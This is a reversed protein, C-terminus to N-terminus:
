FGRLLSEGIARGLAPPAPRDLNVVSGAGNFLKGAYPSRRLLPKSMPVVRANCLTDNGPTGLPALSELASRSTPPDHFVDGLPISFATVDSRTGVLFLRRRSQPVGFDASNLIVKATRYGLREARGRLDYLVTAWRDNSGLSMVNEMVFARPATAEVVDLFRWIHDSRPDAPDMKGAVSFGQCPPGGVVLDCQVGAILPMHDAVDGTHCQHSDAALTPIRHGLRKCSRQYTETADSNIDIAFVPAFGAEAFGIDLGGAGTYVSLMRPAQM